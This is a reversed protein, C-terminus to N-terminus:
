KKSIKMGPTSVEIYDVLINISEKLYLDESDKKKDTEEKKIDSDASAENTSNLSYLKKQNNSIEKETIYEKWRLKENLSVEKKSQIEKFLKIFDHLKHFEPNKDRRIISDEKLKPIFNDINNKHSYEAPKISDWPLAHDLKSEGIDMHNTFSEFVIDPTVGKNQTSSGNIRYFKANTLKIAGPNFGLKFRSLLDGLDLVTQITGKGHTSKDGVIIGRGYDQIAGAFIEAASASLKSVLVILPGDYYCEPDNDSEILVKNRQNKTQVVPGEKIFLGTIDIAERLSGGGNLRLDIILGDIKDKKFQKLIKIIDKTSSKFDKKGQFAAQFDFYFSHLKIIGIDLEKGDDMKIIKTEAKAESDKLKVIGRIIFVEKPIANAGEAGELITLYVKSGKEGRIRNVVKSLPMDIIDIPETDEERVSIIRDTPKLKGSKDAPGGPILKQIKTYGDESSLMAGIGVFSLQMQINFNEEAQPSMYSSHPDYTHALTSLYIELVDIPTNEDLYRRYTKLRSLTRETPTRVHTPKKIKKKKKIKDKNEKEEQKVIKNMLRYTLIDNKIKKRWIIDLEEESKVWKEDKRDYKFSEDISYDFGSDILTKSFKERDKVKNILNNYVTYAFLTDGQKLKSYLPGAEAKFSDIDVQTFYIHNPDLVNIYEEFLQESIETDDTKNIYHENGLVSVIIRSIIGFHNEPQVEAISNTSFSLFTFLIFLGCRNFYFRM